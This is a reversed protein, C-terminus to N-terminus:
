KNEIEVLHLFYNIGSIFAQTTEDIEEFSFRTTYCDELGDAVDIEISGSDKLFKFLLIQTYTQENNIEASLIVKIAKFRGEKDHTASYIEWDLDVNEFIDKNLFNEINNLALNFKGDQALSIMKNIAVECEAFGIYNKNDM